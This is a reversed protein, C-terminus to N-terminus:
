AAALLQPLRAAEDHMYTLPRPLAVPSSRGYGPRAYIFAPLNCARAIAAPTDRWTTISGLGEHLFVLTPAGAPPGVRAVEIVVDGLTLTTSATPSATPPLM